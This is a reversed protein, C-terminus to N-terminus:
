ISVEMRSTGTYYWMQGKGLKVSARIAETVYDKAFKVAEPMQDGLALRATIAASMICGTGHLHKGEVREGHYEIFQEGDYLIDVPEGDLHGGKVLVYGAGMDFIAKAAEKAGQIDKVSRKTIEGAEVLNPTVLTCHPILFRRMRYVGKSLLLRTDDKAFIVPDLVVNQIERRTIRGAVTNVLQYAYLMGIKCADVGIDRASADIQAAVIRPPVKEIKHVGQSNQATVATVASLGYVGLDAFVKLDAQM